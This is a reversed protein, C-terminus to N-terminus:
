LLGRARFSLWADGAFILHDLLEIEIARTAEAIRRTLALDGDSPALDGSPHNHAVILARTGLDLAEHVIARLPVRVRRAEGPESLSLALVQRAGDLHLVAFRERALAPLAPGLLAAADQSDLVSGGPRSLGVQRM